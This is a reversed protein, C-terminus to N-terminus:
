VVHGTIVKLFAFKSEPINLVHELQQSVPNIVIVIGFLLHATMLVSVITTAPGSAVSSLINAEITEGYVIYTAISCPMYIVFVVSFLATNLLHENDCETKFIDDQINLFPPKRSKRLCNLELIQWIFNLM